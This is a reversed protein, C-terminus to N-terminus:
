GSKGNSLPSKTLSRPPLVLKQVLADATKGAPRAYYAPRTGVTAFGIRAYLRLASANDSAVELFAVEATQSASKLWTHMLRAGLGRGQAPPDVAITLLEAEGAIARWLAFGDAEFTLNTNSDDMLNKFESASWPRSQTFASAHIRALDDPTM